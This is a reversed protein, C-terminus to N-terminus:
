RGVPQREEADGKARGAEEATIQGDALHIARDAAGAIREDHTAIIVTQKGALSTLLEVIAAGTKTDLNGTPEDAIVLAPDNIFARAIAVRQQEGGSLQGPRHRMRGSLGVRELLEEARRRAEKGSMGAFEAPLMVNELATLNPMLNFAQFVFGVKHRRFTTLKSPSLRHLAEGVAFVEGEDARDMGGIVHLLTSKGSGSPGVLALVGGSEQTLDLGALAEVKAAGVGYRKAVGRLELIIDPM